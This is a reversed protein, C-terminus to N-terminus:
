LRRGDMSYTRRRQLVVDAGPSVQSSDADPDSCKLGSVCIAGTDFFLSGTSM